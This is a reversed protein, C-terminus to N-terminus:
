SKEQSTAQTIKQSAAHSVLRRMLDSLPIGRREALNEAEQKETETVRVQILATRKIRKKM